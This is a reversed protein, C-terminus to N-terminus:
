LKEKIKALVEAKDFGYLEVIQIFAEIEDNLIEATLADLREQDKTVYKGSREIAYVIEREELVQYAKQVTNPNVKREKALERVAPLKDGANLEHRVIMQCIELALKYFIANEYGFM